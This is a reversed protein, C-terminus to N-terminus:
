REKNIIKSASVITDNLALKQLRNRLGTLRTITNISMSMSALKKLISGSNAGRIHYQREQVKLSVTSLISGATMTWMRLPNSTGSIMM